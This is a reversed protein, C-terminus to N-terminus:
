RKYVSKGGVITELVPIERIKLPDIKLPNEALITFDAMKGAEISGKIKEDHEQWAADITVARMAELPTIRQEPGLVKGSRTQRNVASWVAQLPSMPTVPSDLHVSFQIGRTLASKLPSIRAGRVPGLLVDRHV